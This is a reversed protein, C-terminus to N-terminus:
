GEKTKRIVVRADEIASKFQYYWGTDRDCIDLDVLSAIRELREVAALLPQGAAPDSGETPLTRSHWSM